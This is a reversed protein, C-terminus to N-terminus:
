VPGGSVLLPASVGVVELAKNRQMERIDSNGNEFSIVRIPSAAPQVTGRDGGSAERPRGLMTQYFWLM